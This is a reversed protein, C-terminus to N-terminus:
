DIRYPVRKPQKTGVKYPRTPRAVTFSQDFILIADGGSLDYKRSPSKPKLNTRSSTDLAVNISHVSRDVSLLIQAFGDWTTQSAVKGEVIVPLNEGQAARVIIAVDRLLRTCIAELRLPQDVRADVSKTHTLRVFEAKEPNAYGNPCELEIPVTQGEYGHLNLSLQGNDDTTGLPRHASFVVAGALGFSEDSLARFQVVYASQPSTRSAASCALIATLLFITLILRRLRAARVHRECYACAYLPSSTSQIMSTVTQDRSM